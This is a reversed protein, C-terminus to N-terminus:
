WNIMLLVGIFQYIFGFLLFLTGILVTRKLHWKKDDVVLKASAEYFRKVTPVAVHESIFRLPLDLGFRIVIRIISVLAFPVSWVLSHILRIILFSCSYKEETKTKRPGLKQVLNVIKDTLYIISKWVFYVFPALLLSLVVNIRFLILLIFCSLISVALYVFVNNIIALFGIHTLQFTNEKEKNISSLFDPAGLADISLLMSGIMGLVAGFLTLLNSDSM